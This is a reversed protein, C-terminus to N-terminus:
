RTLRIVASLPAGHPNVVYTGLEDGEAVTESVLSPKLRALKDTAQDSSRVMETQSRAFLFVLRESSGDPALRYTGPIRFEGGPALQLGGYRQDTRPTLESGDTTLFVMLFGAVSSRFHVSYPKGPQAQAETLRRGDEQQLWYRIGQYRTDGSRFPGSASPAQAAAGLVAVALILRTM